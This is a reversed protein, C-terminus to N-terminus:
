SLVAVEDKVGIDSGPDHRAGIRDRYAKACGYHVVTQDPFVSIVSNGIRKICVPCVRADTIVVNKSRLNLLTQQTRVLESKLLAASIRNQNMTSTTDRLHSQFFQSLSTLKINPPLLELADIASLRSGNNSLLDLAADLNVPPTAYTLDTAQNYSDPSQVQLYESAIGNTVSNRISASDDVIKGEPSVSQLPPRLYLELLTYFVTKDTPSDRDYINMCYEQAKKYDKMRFVYIELARRHEGIRSFLIAKSEFFLESARPIAALIKEPRYQRSDRLLNELKEVSKILKPDDITSDQATSKIEELYALALDNHFDPSLDGVEFVLYELYKITLSRSQSNLFKVVFPRSLGESEPTRSMFIDIGYQEDKKIADPSYEFILDLNDNDLKQLYRVTPEPGDFEPIKKSGNLSKLLELADRHFKKSFYFDILESYKGYMLLQKRVVTKDCHNSLRVLPGVLQPNILMYCRLLATDVVISEHEIDEGYANSLIKSSSVREFDEQSIAGSEVSALRGLKRRADILYILLCRVAKNLTRIDMAEPGLYDAVSTIESPLTKSTGKNGSLFNILSETVTTSDGNPLRSRISNQKDVKVSSTRSTSPRLFRNFIEVDKKRQSEGMSEAISATEPAIGQSDSNENPELVVAPVEVRTQNEANEIEGTEKDEPSATTAAMSTAQGQSDARNEMTTPQQMSKDTDNMTNEEQIGSKDRAGAVESDQRGSDLQESAAEAKSPAHTKSGSESGQLLVDDEDEDISGGSISPPYLALVREPPASVESFLTMSHSFKMRKFLEEAKRMKLDKLRALRDAVYADGMDEILNIAEDLQNTRILSQVQDEFPRLCLQWIQRSSAVVPFRGDQFHLLQPFNIAQIVSHSKANRVEFKKGSSTVSLIFPYSYGLMVPVDKFRIPRKKRMFLGTDASIFASSFENVLAVSNDRPLLTALASNQKRASVSGPLTLSGINAAVGALAGDIAGVPRGAAFIPSVSSASIDVIFYEVALGCIVRDQKIFTISRPREPIAIERSGILESNQWEFCHLKKKSAVVLRSVVRKSDVALASKDAIKPEQGIIPPPVFPCDFDETSSTAFVAAGKTRQLREQLSYTELSYLYVYSNSLAVLVNAEKIVSLQEIPGKTFKEVTERLIASSDPLISTPASTVTSDPDDANGEDECFLDYVKLTGSALGVYLKHELSYLSEIREKSNLDVVPIPAFARLM